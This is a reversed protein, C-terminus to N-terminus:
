HKQSLYLFFYEVLLNIKSDLHPKIAPKTDLIAEIAVSSEVSILFCVNLWSRAIRAAISM